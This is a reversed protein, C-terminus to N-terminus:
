RGAKGSARREVRTLAARADIMAPNSALARQYRRRAAASDGVDEALRGLEYEAV